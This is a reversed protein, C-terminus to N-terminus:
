ASSPMRSKQRDRPSPSTYLLCPPTRLLWIDLDECEGPVPDGTLPNELLDENWNGLKLYQYFGSTLPVSIPAHQNAPISYDPGKFIQIFQNAFTSDTSSFVVDAYGDDNIDGVDLDALYPNIITITEFMEEWENM